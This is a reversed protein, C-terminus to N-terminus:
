RSSWKELMDVGNSGYKLYNILQEDFTISLPKYQHSSYRAPDIIYRNMPQDYIVGTFNTVNGDADFTCDNKSMLSLYLMITVINYLNIKLETSMELNFIFTNLKDLLDINSKKATLSKPKTVVVAENVASNKNQQDIKSYISGFRKFFEIVLTRLRDKNDLPLSITDPKTKGKYILQLSLFQTYKNERLSFKPPTEGKALNEMIDRWFPDDCMESIEMFIPYKIKTAPLKKSSIISISPKIDTSSLKFSSLSPTQYKSNM